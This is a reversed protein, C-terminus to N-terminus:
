YHQRRKSLNFREDFRCPVNEADLLKFFNDIFKNPGKSCLINGDATRVVVLYGEYKNGWAPDPDYEFFHTKGKFSFFNDNKSNLNFKKSIKEALIYQKYEIDYGILFFNVEYTVPYPNKSTKKVEVTCTIEEKVNDIDSGVTGRDVDDDVNIEIKPPKKLAIYDQDDKILASIPVVKTKGQQPKIWVKGSADKVYEGELSQGKISTWVRMEGFAAVTMSMLLVVTLFNKM